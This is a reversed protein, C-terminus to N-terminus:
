ATGSKMRMVPRQTLRAIEEAVRREVIDALNEELWERLLPEVLDAVLQRLAEEGGLARRAAEIREMRALANKVRAQVKPSLRSGGRGHPAEVAAMPKEGLETAGHAKESASDGRPARRASPYLPTVVASARGDDMTSAAREEGPAHTAEDGGDAMMADNWRESRVSPFPKDDAPARGHGPGGHGDAAPAGGASRGARSEEHAHNIAERISALLEQMNELTDSGNM